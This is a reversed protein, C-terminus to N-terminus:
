KQQENMQIDKARSTKKQADLWINTNVGRQAYM